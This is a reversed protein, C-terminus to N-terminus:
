PLRKSLMWIRYCFFVKVILSIIADLDPLRHPFGLSKLGDVDGFGAM